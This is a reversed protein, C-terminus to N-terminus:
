ASDQDPYESGQDFGSPGLLQQPKSFPPHPREFWEGEAGPATEQLILHPLFMRSVSADDDWVRRQEIEEKLKIASLLRPQNHLALRLDWLALQSHGNAYYELASRYHAQALRERGYCMLGRRLGVRMREMDELQAVSAKSYADDDKVIHVTLLIIVEETSVTERTSRFAPGILPLDGAIPIQGHASTDTERFLGGILITQGDKLQINTTIETTTEFPLNAANVGGISDEPHLEMRVDGNKGIFPRFILQTGTELFEVTQIAQTETVTTTLYGDRRGVIVQGKQKNLALVKPNALLVTDTIQELARIFVGVHDKIVGFTMGGPPVSDAFDSEMAANFKEFRYTPLEGTELTTIGTSTSGLLELDVGGVLTFDIGLSNEDNLTARLITAEVLVQQPRVDLEDLLQEIAAINEPYDYVVIYEHGAFDDGGAETANTEIGQGAEGSATLSGVDSKLSELAKVAESAAIYYLRLVKIIPPNAAQQQKALEERTYVYVFNGQIQYACQNAMLIVDLAEEFTVDYLDATVTGQVAPTAIINRHSQLSLMQLVTALSLNAVHIEVTGQPSVTILGPDSTAEAPDAPQQQEKGTLVSKLVQQAIDEAGAAAHVASGAAAVLLATVILTVRTRRKTTAM